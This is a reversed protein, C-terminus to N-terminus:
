GNSAGSLYAAGLRRARPWCKTGFVATQDQKCRESASVRVANLRDVMCSPKLQDCVQRTLGGIFARFPASSQEHM